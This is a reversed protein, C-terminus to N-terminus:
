PSPFHNAQPYSIKISMAVNGARREIGPSTLKCWADVQRSLLLLALLLYRQYKM